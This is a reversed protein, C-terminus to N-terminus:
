NSNSVSVGIVDRRGPSLSSIGIGFQTFSKMRVKEKAAAPGYHSTSESNGPGDEASSADSLLYEQESDVMTTNFVNDYGAPKILELEKGRKGKVLTENRSMQVWFDLNPTQRAIHLIKRFLKADKQGYVVVYSKPPRRPLEYLEDVSSYRSNFNDANTNLMALSCTNSFNSLVTPVRTHSETPFVKCPTEPLSFAHTPDKIRLLTGNEMWHSQGKLDDICDSGRLIVTRSCYQSGSILRITEVLARSGFM